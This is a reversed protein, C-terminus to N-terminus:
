RLLLHGNRDTELRKETRHLKKCFVHDAAHWEQIPFQTEGHESHQVRVTQVGGHQVGKCLFRLVFCLLLMVLLNKKLFNMVLVVIFLM